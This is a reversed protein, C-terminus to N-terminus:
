QYNLVVNASGFRERLRVLLEDDPQVRWKPGLSIMGKVSGAAGAKELHLIIACGPERTEAEEANHRGEQRGSRGQRAPPLAKVPVTGDLRFSGLLAELAPLSEVQLQHAQLTLSLSRAYERRAEELKLIRRTTVKLKSNGNYDDMAVSGELVVVTDLKLLERYQLWTEPFLTAEIRGSRDDLTLVAMADGKKSKIQRIEHVLGAILQQGKEAKLNNINNRVFRSLEPLYASIPHGSLYLGLTDKEEQLRRHESWPRIHRFNAYVDAASASAITEGFLDGIGSQLNLSNQEATQVAEAMSALLV